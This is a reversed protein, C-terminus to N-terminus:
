SIGHRYITDWPHMIIGTGMTTFIMNQPEHNNFIKAMWQPVDPSGMLLIGRKLLQFNKGDMSAESQDNDQHLQKQKAFQSVKQKHLEFCNGNRLM